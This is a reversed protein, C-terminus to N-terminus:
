NTEIFEGESNEMIGYSVAIQIYKYNVDGKAINSFKLDATKDAMAPSYGRANVLMKVLDIQTIQKDLKFDTTEILGRSALISLEKEAKSDKIKEKFLEINQDINEGNNNVFKGTLGDINTYDYVGKDDCLRYALKTELEPKESNVSKNIQTYVLVPKYKNFLIEGANEKSIVTKIEPFVISKDWNSNLSTMNGTIASFSINISNNNYEVANKLRTFNFNYGRQGIKDNANNTYYYQETKIQKVIDPYYQAIVEIAKTYAEEWTLKPKFTTSVNNDENSYQSCNLIQGTLADISINGMEVYQGTQGNSFNASWIKSGLSGYNDTSEQYGLNQIVHGEGYIKNIISKILEGAEKEEIANDRPTVVKERNYFTEKEKENLDKTVLNDINNYPNLTKGDKADLMNGNSFEPVYVLKIDKKNQYYGNNHVTTIYKLSMKAENKFAEAATKSDIIGSIVPFQLNDTWNKSYSVVKKKVGDVEVNINNGDYEIGNVENVYNFNYNASQYYGLNNDKRNSENFNTPQIKKLFDDSIQAAEKTNITPIANEGNAIRENNSAQMVEGTEANLTVNISVSKELNYMEWYITWVSNEKGNYTSTNLNIRQTLKTEDIETNFYTKIVAKAIEKAKEKSIKVSKEDQSNITSTTDINVAKTVALKTITMAEAASGTATFALALALLMSGIRKRNM